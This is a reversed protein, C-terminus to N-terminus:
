STFLRGLRSLVNQDVAEINHIDFGESMVRKDNWREEMWMTYKETNLFAIKEIEDRVDHRREDNALEYFRLRYYPNEPMFEAAKKFYPLADQSSRTYFHFLDGKIYCIKGLVARIEKPPKQENRKIFLSLNKHLLRLKQQITPLFERRVSAADNFNIPVRIKEILCGIKRLLLENFRQKHQPVDKSLNCNMLIKQAENLSDLNADQVDPHLKKDIEILVGAYDITVAVLPNDQPTIRAIQEAIHVSQQAIEKASPFNMLDLEARVKAQNVTVESLLYNKLQNLNNKDFKITDHSEFLRRAEKFKRDKIAENFLYTIWEEKLVIEQMSNDQDLIDPALKIAQALHNIFHTGFLLRTIPSRSKEKKADELYSQAVSRRLESDPKLHTLQESPDLYDKIYAVSKNKDESQPSLVLINLLEIANQLANYTTHKTSLYFYIYQEPFQYKIDIHWNLADIYHEQNVLYTAYNEAFRCNTLCDRIALRQRRNHLGNIASSIVHEDQADIGPVLQYLEDNMFSIFTQGFSHDAHLPSGWRTIQDSHTIYYSLLLEQLEASNKNERRTNLLSEFRESLIPPEFNFQNKIHFGKLYGQYAIKALTMEVKNAQCHNEFGLWGKITQFLYQLWSVRFVQIGDTYLRSIPHKKINKWFTWYEAEDFDYIIFDPRYVVGRNRYRRVIPSGLRIRLM